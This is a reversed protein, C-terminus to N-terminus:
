ARPSVLAAVAEADSKVVIVPWLSHFDIQDPTLKRASAVKAGDKVEMLQLRGRHLVLLDPCGNGVAALSLVQAGCARLAGVVVAHNADVRAARRVLDM